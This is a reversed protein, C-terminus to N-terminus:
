RGGVILRGAFLGLICGIIIGITNIWIPQEVDEPIGLYDGLIMSISTGITAGLFDSYTNGLAAKTKIGGPMYKELQDIGVWLGFNDMFGFVIGFTLGVVISKLTITQGSNLFEIFTKPKQKNKIKIMNRYVFGIYILGGIILINLIIFVSLRVDIM